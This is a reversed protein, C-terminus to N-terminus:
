VTMESVSKLKPALKCKFAWRLSCDSIYISKINTDNSTAPEDQSLILHTTPQIGADIPMFHPLNKPRWDVAASLADHWPTSTHDPM